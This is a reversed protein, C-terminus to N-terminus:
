VGLLTNIATVQTQRRVRADEADDIEAQVMHADVDSVWSSPSNLDDVATQSNTVLLEAGAITDADAGNAIAMDRLTTATALNSELTTRMATNVSQRDLRADLRDQQVKKDAKFALQSASMKIKLEELQATTLENLTKM